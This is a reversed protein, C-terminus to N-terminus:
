QSSHMKLIINAKPHFYNCISEIEKRICSSFSFRSFILIALVSFIFIFELIKFTKSEWHFFYLFFLLFILFWQISYFSLLRCFIEYHALVYVPFYYLTHPNYAEHYATSFFEMYSVSKTIRKVICLSLVVCYVYVSPLISVATTKKSM